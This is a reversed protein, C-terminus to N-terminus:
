SYPLAVRNDWIANFSKIDFDFGNAIQINTINNNGDYTFKRILWVPDSTLNGPRAQGLYILNTGGQYDMIYTFRESQIVNTTPAAHGDFPVLPM